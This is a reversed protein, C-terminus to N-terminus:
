KKLSMKGLDIAKFYRPSQPLYSFSAMLGATKKLENKGNSVYGSRVLFARGLKEKPM